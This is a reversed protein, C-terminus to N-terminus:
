DLRQRDSCPAAPRPSARTSGASSHDRRSISELVDPSGIRQLSVRRRGLDTAAAPALDHDGPVASTAARTPADTDPRARHQRFGRLVRLGAGSVGDPQGADHRADPGDDSPRERRLAAHRELRAAVVSRRPFRPPQRISIGAERGAGQQLDASNGSQHDVDSSLLLNTRRDFVVRLQGRAATVDDGGLPHDPHELDRVYGDRVGRAFAVSGMVRDRKLPGSIRADARLEGFNGATLHASAQFDNTPPRPILNM